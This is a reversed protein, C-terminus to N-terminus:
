IGVTKTLNKEKEKLGSKIYDYLVNSEFRISHITTQIVRQISDPRKFCSPIKYNSYCNALMCANPQRGDEGFM